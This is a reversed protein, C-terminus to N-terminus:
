GTLQYIRYHGAPEDEFRVKFILNGKQDSKGEGSAHRNPTFHSLWHVTPDDRNANNDFSWFCIAKNHTQCAPHQLM